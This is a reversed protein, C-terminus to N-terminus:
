EKDLGSLSLVTDFIRNQQDFNTEEKSIGNVIFQALGKAKEKHHAEGKDLCVEVMLCGELMNLSQSLSEIEVFALIKKVWENPQDGNSLLYWDIFSKEMKSKVFPLVVETFFEPDRKFLFFNLEHSAYKSFQKLKKSRDFTPWMLFLSDIHEGIKGETGRHLEKAVAYIKEANDIVQIKSSTIDEIHTKQGEKM